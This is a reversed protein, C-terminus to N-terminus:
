VIRLQGASYYLIYVFARSLVAFTHNSSYLPTFVHVPIIQFDIIGLYFRYVAEEEEAGKQAILDMSVIGEADTVGELHSFKEVYEETWGYNSLVRLDFMNQEDTFKQGTAVMDTKTMLLGLFLGAGLSIIAAIAIYRGFSKKISQRLNKRMANRKMVM